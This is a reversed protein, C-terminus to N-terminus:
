RHPAADGREMGVEEGGGEREARIRMKRLRRLRKGDGAMKIAEMAYMEGGEGRSLTAAAELTTPLGWCASGVRTGDLM